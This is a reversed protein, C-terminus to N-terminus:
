DSPLVDLFSDIADYEGIEKDPKRSDPKRITYLHKIGYQRATDLVPLSDDFFISSNKDFDKALKLKHWFRIDEKAYGLEHSTIMFDFYQQLRTKNMKLFLSKEHANTLLWIDKQMDRMTKLFKEVGPHIAILHQVEAKLAAIDMDLQKSWYDVCYWDLSGEASAYHNFLLNKAENFSLGNNEAYRQPVYEQWFHNDYHLDLLTGDMDLFITNISDWIIM